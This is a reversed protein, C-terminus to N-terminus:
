KRGEAKKMFREEDVIFRTHTGYGIEGTSDHATVSFAIKKGTVSTIEATATVQAGLPSAATHEIRIATGVSTQGPDLCDSLCQCSAQEMLAIISATAFVPLTGSKMSAATDTGNVTRSISATKGILPHPSKGAFYDKAIIAYTVSDGLGQNNVDAQRMTGEYQMGAKRMVKGSNPNRTDHRSDIRNVGVEEFFFRILETLAESTYGQRWWAKGICYGIHVSNVNNNRQVISISGIPEGVSKPVIAWYSDPSEYSDTWNKLVRRTETINGHPNWTLYKTVEPDNAWNRFMAEADNLSFRRLVLRETELRFTGKHTM